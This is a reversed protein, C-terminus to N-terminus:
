RLLRYILFIQALCLGAIGVWTLAERLRLSRQTASSLSFGIKVSGLEIVDGNHLISNQTREANVAAFADPQTQLLFAKSSDLSMAAHQEWIGPDDLTLDSASARGIRFPFHRAVIETGAMRGSLIKLLVM